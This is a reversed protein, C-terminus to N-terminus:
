MGEHYRVEKSKSLLINNQLYSDTGQVTRFRIYDTLYVRGLGKIM